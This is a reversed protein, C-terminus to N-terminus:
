NDFNDSLVIKRHQDNVISITVKKTKKPLKGDAIQPWEILTLQRDSGYDDWDFNDLDNENLRYLDLHVVQDIHKHDLKYRHEIVFTPSNVRGTYGLNKLIAQILTTKGAALNGEFAILDGPQLHQAIKKAAQAIKELSYEFQIM